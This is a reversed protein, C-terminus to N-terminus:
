HDQEIHASLDAAHHRSGCQLCQQRLASVLVDDTWLQDFKRELLIDIIRGNLEPTNSGDCLTGVFSMNIQLVAHGTTQIGRLCSSHPTSVSFPQLHM